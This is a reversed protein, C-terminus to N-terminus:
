VAYYRLVSSQLCNQVSTKRISFGNSYSFAIYYICVNHVYQATKLFCLARNLYFSADEPYLGCAETYCEIASKWNNKKVFANGQLYFVVRLQSLRSCFSTLCLLM